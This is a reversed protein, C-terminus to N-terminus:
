APHSAPGPRGRGRRREARRAASAVQQRVGERLRGRRRRLRDECVLRLGSGLPAGPLPRRVRDPECPPVGSALRPDPDGVWLVPDSRDLVRDGAARARLPRRRRDVPRDRAPLRERRGLRRLRDRGALRGRQRVVGPRRHPQGERDAVLDARRRRQPEARDDPGPQAVATVLRRLRPQPAPEVARHRRRDGAQRGRGVDEPPQRAGAGELCGARRFALRRVAASPRDQVADHPHLLLVASGRPRRRGRSRLRLHEPLEGPASVRVVADV